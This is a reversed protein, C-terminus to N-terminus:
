KGTVVLTETTKRNGADLASIVLTFEGNCVLPPTFEVPPAWAFRNDGDPDELGEMKLGNIYGTVSSSLLDQDVDSVEVSVLAVRPYEGTAGAECTVEPASVFPPSQPVEDDGCAFALTAVFIFIPTLLRNNM